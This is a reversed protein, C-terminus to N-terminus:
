MVSEEKVKNIFEDLSFTTNKVQGRPRVSITKNEMEEKGVIIQYPLKQVAWERIKYGIRENRIDLKTRIDNKRLEDYVFTAYENFDESISLVAVQIPSLWTPFAGAYNEILNGIFREISGYMARHIMIPRQKSGDPAIYELEFNKPQQFDLQITGCQWTRDLCDRIHFDIKPGYFAGDGENLIYEMNSEELALRLQEEAFDWDEVNGMFDEPRTSLEIHYSFDFKTYIEDMMKMVGIIEDKIQEPLMYIHADDQTFSRVRLLGHLAGSMEHRHVLGLEAVRMPLDRYSVMQQKYALIGGPCNMPKIAYEMEDIESTYMNAKYHEWHGSTLWLDKSLMTPTLIQIYNDRIHLKKWYNIILDRLIIGNNLFVPFGPGEEFMTYIGLEKGLKRHDRKKAEELKYLYEDLLKKKPFTIGYVRTLVKNKDDGKWYAGSVKMLKIAKIEKTNHVHPGRCLDTFEGQTYFSIVSDEPLETVLEEKFPEEQNQVYALAENRPLVFRTIDHKEKAIKKMENEIAEFDDERFPREYEFDYFFGNEITPGIALKVGPYLRKIAQALMHTSTHWYVSKGEKEEWTVIELECDEEIITRQDLIVGNSVGGLMNRGLGESIDFAIERVTMPKDYERIDGNKLTIKM